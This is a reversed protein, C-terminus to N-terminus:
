QFEITKSYPKHNPKVSEVPAYQRQQLQTELQPEDFVDFFIRVPTKRKAALIRLAGELLPLSEIGKLPISLAWSTFTIPNGLATRFGYVTLGDYEMDILYHYHPNSIQWHDFTEVFRQIKQTDVMRDLTEAIKQELEM